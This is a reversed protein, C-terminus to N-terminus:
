GTKAPTTGQTPSAGSPKKGSLIDPVSGVVGWIMSITDKPIKVVTDGLRRPICTACHSLCPGGCMKTCFVEQPGPLLGYLAVLAEVGCEAPIWNVREGYYALPWIILTTGAMKLNDAGTFRCNGLSYAEDRNCLNYVSDGGEGCQGCLGTTGPPYIPNCSGISTDGREVDSRWVCDGLAECKEKSCQSALGGLESFKFGANYYGISYLDGLWDWSGTGCRLCRTYDDNGENDLIGKNIVGECKTGMEVGIKKRDDGFGISKAEGEECVIKSSQLGTSIGLLQEYQKKEADNKSYVEDYFKPHGTFFNYCISRFNMIHAKNNPYAVVFMKSENDWKQGGYLLDVDCSAKKCYPEGKGIKGKPSQYGMSIDSCDDADCIECVAESDVCDYICKEINNENDFWCIEDQKGYEKCNLHDECATGCENVDCVRVERFYNIGEQLEASVEGLKTICGEKTTFVCNGAAMKCTGKEKLDCQYGCKNDDQINIDFKCKGEACNPDSAEYECAKKQKVECVINSPISCCGERCESVEETDSGAEWRCGPIDYAEAATKGATCGSPCVMIGKKCNDVESKPLFSHWGKECDDQVLGSDDTYDVCYLAPTSYEATTKECTGTQQADAITLTMIISIILIFIILLAKTKM